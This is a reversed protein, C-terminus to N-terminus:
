AHDARHSSSKQPLGDQVLRIVRPFLVNNELHTHEHVAGELKGLERYLVRIGQPADEGAVYGYALERLEDWLRTDIEHDQEIMHIPNRVSGFSQRPAPRGEAMAREIELIAPFLVTEENRLHQELDARLRVFVRRLPPISRDEGAV